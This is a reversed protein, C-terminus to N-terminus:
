RGRHRRLRRGRLAATPRPGRARSAPATTCPSGCARPRRARRHRGPVAVAHGRDRAGRGAAPDPRRRRHRAHGRALVHRPERPRVVPLAHGPRLHRGRDLESDVTIGRCASTSSSTSRARTAPAATSPGASPGVSSTRSAPSAGSTPASTRSGAATSRVGRLAAVARLRPGRVPDLTRCGADPIDLGTEEDRAPHPIPVPVGDIAEVLGRFSAFDVQVYHNIEIGFNEDITRILLPAGGQQM